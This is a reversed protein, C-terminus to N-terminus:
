RRVIRLPFPAASEHAAGGPEGPKRRAIRGRRLPQLARLSQVALLPQLALLRGRLSQVPQLARM